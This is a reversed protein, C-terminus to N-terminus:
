NTLIPEGFNGSALVRQLQASTIYGEEFLANAIKAFKKAGPESLRKRFLGQAWISPGPVVMTLLISQNLTLMEPETKFFYESAQKVGYTSHGFPILNIYWELIKDKSLTSELLLAGLAERLKRTMTKERSLFLIRVVQQSITSAGRVYRGKELNTLLSNWIERFDLGCHQYFPADEAVVISNLFFRSSKELSTWAATNPGVTVSTPLGTKLDERTITVQGEKISSIDPTLWYLCVVSLVTVTLGITTVLTKRIFM